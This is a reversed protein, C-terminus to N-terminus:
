FTYRLVLQVQRNIQNTGTIQGFASSSLTTNPGGLRTTNFMNFFEGRFEVAHREAFRFRKALSTDVTFIGDGEVIFAGANGYTFADPLSFASRRFWEDPTKPGNNPDGSVNPRQYTRGVNARDSGSTVNFPRGTQARVFGDIVWGGLIANAFPHMNGGYKMGRGFPLDYVYSANFVHRIDISARSYDARMNYPDQTKWEALSSQDDLIKGWTYNVNFLLGASYRKKLGVQLSHYNSGFRNAGGDLDSFEPVLRRPNVAGPGPRAANIATYGAQKRNGAGVYAIDFSMDNMVQRQISFNWQQSYPTRNSPNQPWGGIASTNSFSPGQDTIRLDPTAGTNPTFVQQITFPWFKRLDQLEQVFTSNYFLGYGTRIVTKSDMQYAIGIRPAFNNYDSQMLARGFGLQKAPQNRLGTEPDVEPNTSAWMLTGTYRGSAPDRSITLNGLRDTIEYPANQFEYRLGVNLTLKSTVRWDDQIFFQPANIRGQTLTNGQGRRIETPFGLLMTAFSHGSNAINASNTLRTDFLADGNMPNATNTFFHRRSYNAGFKISHRGKIMSMNAIGQWIKDATIDGGGGVSWEGVANFNPPVTNSIVDPQFMTIGAQTLFDTRTLKRGYSLGPNQPNNYGFKVELVTSSSFLHNWGAGLNHGGFSSQSFFNVNANPSLLDARQYLYRVFLNDKSGMQHDFRMVLADRDNAQSETNLLNQTLNNNVPLPMYTDVLLKISPAIRSAPIINGPFQNRIIGAATQQSTLPDFIQRSQGSFDGQRQAVPPTNSIATTGRRRRFGEYNAFWFTKNQGNYLKPIWVPGGASVGFQNQRFPVKGRGQRNAFFENADLVNNRFYEYVSGHLENTGSRIAMNVNAGASRGFEASNNTAVRFEQLSDMPPSLGPSNMMMFNNDVGDVTYSNDQRRQGNVSILQTGSEATGKSQSSGQDSSGPMLMILRTYNRGNVPIRGVDFTTVTNGVSADQTQLVPAAATVNVSESVQGVGLKFDLKVTQAVELVINKANQTQFGSKSVTVEYTGPNLTPVRYAGSNDTTTDRELGTGVNRVIIKADVLAAGSSDAVDGVITATTTQAHLTWAALSFMAAM